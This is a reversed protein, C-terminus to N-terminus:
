LMVYDWPADADISAIGACSFDYQSIRTDAKEQSSELELVLEVMNSMIRFCQEDCTISMVTNHEGLKTRCLSNEMRWESAIFKILNAKNVSSAKFSDWQQVVQGSFLTKYLIAEVSNSRKQHEANKHVYKTFMLCSTLASM